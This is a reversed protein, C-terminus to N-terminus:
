KMKEILELLWKPSNQGITQMEGNKYKAVTVFGNDNDYFTAENCYPLITLLDEFRKAFCNAVTDSNINHGGRKVRNEIGLIFGEAQTLKPGM